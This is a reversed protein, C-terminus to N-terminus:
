VESNNAHADGSAAYIRLQDEVTDVDGQSLVPEADPDQPLEFGADYLQSLTDRADQADWGRTTLEREADKMSYTPPDTKM